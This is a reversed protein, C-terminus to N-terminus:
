VVLDVEYQLDLHLVIEGWLSWRAQGLYRLLIITVECKLADRQLVVCADLCSSCKPWVVYMAVNHM